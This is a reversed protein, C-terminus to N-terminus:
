VHVSCFSIVEKVERYPNVKIKFDHNLNENKFVVKRGKSVFVVFTKVNNVKNLVWVLIVDNLVNVM